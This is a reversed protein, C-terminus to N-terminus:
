KNSKKGISKHQVKYECCDTEVQRWAFGFHPSVQRISEMVKPRLLNHFERRSTAVDVEIERACIQHTIIWCTFLPSFCLFFTLLLLTAFQPFWIAVSVKKHPWIWMAAATLMDRVRIWISNTPESGLCFRLVCWYKMPGHFNPALGDSPCEARM